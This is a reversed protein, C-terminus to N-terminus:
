ARLLLLVYQPAQNAQALMATGAQQLVMGRALNASEAAYDADVIGSVAEQLRQNVNMLNAVTHELRNILAGAQARNGNLKGIATDIAAVATSAADATAISKLASSSTISTPIDSGTAGSANLDLTHASFTVSNGTKAVDSGVFMSHSNAGGTSAIVGRNFATVSNIRQVEAKLAEYEYNANTRDADEYTGTKSQVALERMRILINEIEAAAGDYTNVLSIADNTNRIAQTLSRIDAGMKAAVAMGAADDSASNIRKGSALREMSQELDRRNESLIRSATTSSNNTNIVVAM